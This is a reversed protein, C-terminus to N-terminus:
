LGHPQLSDSVVSRSVSESWDERKMYTDSKFFFCSCDTDQSLICDMKFHCSIVLSKSCKTCKGFLLIWVCTLWPYQIILYNVGLPLIYSKSHHDQILFKFTLLTSNLLKFTLLMKFHKLIITSIQQTSSQCRIISCSLSCTQKTTLTHSNLYFSAHGFKSYKNLIPNTLFNMQTKQLLKHFFCFSSKPWGLIQFYFQFNVNLKFNKSNFLSSSPTM